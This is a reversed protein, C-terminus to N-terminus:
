NETTNYFLDSEMTKLNRKSLEVYKHEKEIGIYHRGLKKAAICTTGSGLFPDLVTEGADTYLKIVRSALEEPFKAEHDDNKRVSPIRWIQRLGWEKWESPTLRKRNVEYPGPKWFVYLDEYENVSKLTSTTWKCNAWAPDKEWIRHDYLYLGCEEAYSNLFSGIMKVKSQIQHKGGRINNGHLRRDITQESCHFHAAIENRNLNPHAKIYALIDDKNLSIRQQSKNLAQFRPINEDPFAMIDAINIICFGGPKLVNYHCHIVDKLTKQWSDFTADLEYDKGVFYPPSWFSCAISNPEIQQMIIESYGEYISDTEIFKQIEKKKKM